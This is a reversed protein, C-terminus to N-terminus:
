IVEFQGMMRMDEHEANHCHFVYLGRYGDFRTIVRAKEGAKLFVTDKNGADEPDPARGDRSLVQFNVLHMHIPHNGDSTFEWIETTGLRPTADARNPDFYTGNITWMGLGYFFQFTRTTLSESPHIVEFPALTTPITSEDKTQRVVDFRMIDTTREDGLLNKLVIHSGVPVHSFDIIVDFREAPSIRITQRLAPAPLLGGDSGIQVFSQHSSLALQYVRANSANLLRFRYKATAVELFPQVAGNVLLTDGLMGNYYKGLVGPTSTLTPDLSPYFFSGDANFTRDTIMLPIDYEGKPLPLADDVEDRILYLGALGKYVQPGTFDMRHDHYWHISAPQDNPYVYEKTQQMQMQLSRGLGNPGMFRRMSADTLSAQFPTPDPPLILDMPYGDSTPPTKGGHLHTSVPVPLANIQRIATTRGRRAEITPGPFIGNYGWIPTTLGPLIHALAPKLTMEYYDTTTDRRLPQLVPPIPLPVQFAQTAPSTVSEIAHIRALPLQLVGMPVALGATGIVGWKLAQRRTIKM